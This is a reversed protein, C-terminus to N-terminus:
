SGHQQSEPALPLRVNQVRHRHLPSAGAGRRRQQQKGQREGAASAQCRWLADGAIRVRLRHLAAGAVADVRRLGAWM